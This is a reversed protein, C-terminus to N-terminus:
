FTKNKSEAKDAMFSINKYGDTNTVLELCLLHLLSSLFEVMNILCQFCYIWNYNFVFALRVEMSLLVSTIIFNFTIWYYVGMIKTIAGFWFHM